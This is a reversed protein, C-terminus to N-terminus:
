LHIKGLIFGLLLCGLGIVWAVHTKVWGTASSQATKVITREAEKIEDSM